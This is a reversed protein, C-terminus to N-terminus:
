KSRWGLGIRVEGGYGSARQATFVASLQGKLKLVAIGGTSFAAQVTAGQTVGANGFAYISVRGLDRLHLAGGTTVTVQLKGEVQRAEYVSYSYLGQTPSVLQAACVWSGLQQLTKGVSPGTAGAGVWTAPLTQAQLGLGFLTTLLLLKM